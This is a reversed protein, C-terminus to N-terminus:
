GHQDADDPTQERRARESRRGLARPLVILAAALAFISVLIVTETADMM